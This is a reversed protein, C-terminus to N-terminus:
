SESDIGWNTSNENKNSKGVEIIVKKKVKKEINMM